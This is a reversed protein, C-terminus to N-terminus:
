RRTMAQPPLNGAGQTLNNTAPHPSLWNGRVFAYTEFGNVPVFRHVSVQGDSVRISKKHRGSPRCLGWRKSEDRVMLWKRSSDTPTYLFSVIGMFSKFLPTESNGGASESRGPCRKAIGPSRSDFRHGLLSGQPSPNLRRLNSAALPKVSTSTRIAM